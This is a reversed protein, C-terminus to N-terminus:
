KGLNLGSVHWVGNELAKAIVIYERRKVPTTEDFYFDVLCGVVDENNNTYIASNGIDTTEQSCAQVNTVKVSQGFFDEMSVQFTNANPYRELFHPYFIYAFLSINLTIISFSLYRLYRVTFYKGVNKEGFIKFIYFIWPGHIKESKNKSIPWLFLGFFMTYIFIAVQFIIADRENM